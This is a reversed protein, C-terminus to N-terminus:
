FLGSDELKKESWQARKNLKEKIILTIVFTIVPFIALILINYWYSSWLVGGIVERLAGIAYTLPLYPHLAQFFPPLLQVPYIGATATIQLVLLIIALSKGANGLTSTLSYVIIMSCFGIFLTTLIFLIASSAQVHLYLAGLAVFISQLISIIIFLGMRGLYISEARYKIRSKIRMSIMAVAIVCGIWLSISIYFPALASGYNNIPYMDHKQVVVPSDFYNQVGTQNMASFAILGNIDSENISNLKSAAVPIAAKITPWQTNVLSLKASAENIQQNINGENAVLTNIANDMTDISSKLQTLDGTPSTGNKIDTEVKQLIVLVNNATSIDTEVQTIIPVLQADGTTDYLSTLIADIYKLTTILVTVQSEMNQVNTLAQTPNSAIQAYLSDYETRVTNSIKQIQPLAASVKPWITNVTSMDTNAQSITSDIEGIQGNLENVFSKAKLFEAKNAAAYEGIDSLKGFIIGDVTKVIEGNIQSQITDVGANTLRPAIPNTKDNVIYQIQAQQPNSTQISLLQQSFNSPIILVAYYKGNKVGNVGTSEDVFQWKFSTNNKLENVLMNGVNYNTGNTAYGLDENVVAVEINSTRAYPDWTAEINLLAYLSPLLIIVLLVVMVVPNNKVAKMDNRFINRIDKIM